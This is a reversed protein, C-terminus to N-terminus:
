CRGMIISVLMFQISYYYYYYYIGAIDIYNAFIIASGKEKDLINLM